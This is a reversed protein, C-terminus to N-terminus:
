GVNLTWSLEPSEDYGIRIARARLTQKGDLLKLPAHYLKWHTKPDDAEGTEFTYAISAGQTACHLCVLGPSAIAHESAPALVPEGEAIVEPALDGLVSLIPTATTPMENDPYWRRKMHEEDLDAMDGVDSTWRDCEARLRQLSEAHAPDDALNNMEWPDAQVDYLEEPPRTRRAFWQQSEELTGEAYRKWIERMIPHRDRYPIWLLSPLDTYYNRLYKFQGDRVARIRDYAEDFRDRNAHIYTRKETKPGLFPRGHLHQPLPVGALSLLTPALDILSVLDNSSTGPKLDGGPWRVVLPVRIGSDYPWRKSRPLGEGHDSWIMVITNDALGDEELQQLLEGVLADNSAINDYQRALAQRGEPTDPLYPPLTVSDPDTRAESRGAGVWQGSEHTTTPNFVSFFPQDLNPRNRWHAHKGLEDWATRPPHFQYDCKENNTCFYGAIRLYQTFPKIHPPICASYPTPMEPTNRNRHGTRMHHGGISIAYCGTIISCRSPACVGATVFANNWYCGEAALRDVNPTHAVPDGYCGFRPSTDEFSIWLFNPPKQASM